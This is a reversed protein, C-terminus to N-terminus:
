DLGGYVSVCTHVFHEEPNAKARVLVHLLNAETLWM